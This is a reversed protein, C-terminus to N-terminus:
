YDRLDKPNEAMKSEREEFRCLYDTVVPFRRIAEQGLEQYELKRIAEETEAVERWNGLFQHYLRKYYLKEIQSNLSM